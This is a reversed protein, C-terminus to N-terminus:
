WGREEPNWTAEEGPQGTGVIYGTSTPDDSLSKSLTSTYDVLAGGM